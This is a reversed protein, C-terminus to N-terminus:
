FKKFLKRNTYERANETIWSTITQNNNKLNEKLKDGLDKEIYARIETYHKKRWEIEKKYNRM